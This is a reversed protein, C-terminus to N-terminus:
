GPMVWFWSRNRRLRKGDRYIHDDGVTFWPAIGYCGTWAKVADVVHCQYRGAPHENYDHGAVIGGPRVRGSWQWIDQVVYPLTHNGDIYVFDLSERKFRKVVDMSYGRCIVADFPRLREETARLFGDLKEQNVHDRYGKYRAWADVCYLKLGPNARLLVDSYRGQEVGVEAGSKFGLEAFLAALGDRDIGPIGIPLGAADTVGFKNKIYSITDM